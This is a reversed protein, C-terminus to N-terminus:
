RSGTLSDVMDESSNCTLFQGPLHLGSSLRAQADARIRDWIFRVSLFVQKWAQPTHLPGYCPSDHGSQLHAQLIGSLFAWKSNGLSTKKFTLIAQSSIANCLGGKFWLSFTYGLIGFSANGWMAKCAETFVYMLHLLLLVCACPTISPHHTGMM